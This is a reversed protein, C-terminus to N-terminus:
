AIPQHTAVAALVTKPDVTSIRMEFLSAGVRIRVRVYWGNPVTFTDLRHAVLAAEAPPLCARLKAIVADKPGIADIM